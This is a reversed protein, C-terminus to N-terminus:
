GTDIYRHISNHYCICMKCVNIKSCYFTDCLIKTCNEKDLNHVNKKKIERLTELSCTFGRRWGWKLFISLLHTPSPAWIYGIRDQCYCFLDVWRWVIENKKWFLYPPPLYTSSKASKPFTENKARKKHHARNNCYLNNAYYVM